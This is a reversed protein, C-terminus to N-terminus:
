FKHVLTFEAPTWPGGASVGQHLAGLKSYNGHSCVVSGQIFIHIDHQFVLFM